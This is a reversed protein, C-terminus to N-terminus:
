DENNFFQKLCFPLTSLATFNPTVNEFHAQSFNGRTLFIINNTFNIVIQHDLNSTM